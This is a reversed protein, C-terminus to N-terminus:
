VISVKPKMQHEHDKLDKLEQALWLFAYFYCVVIVFFEPFTENSIFYKESLWTNWNKMKWFSLDVQEYVKELQRCLNQNESIEQKSKCM